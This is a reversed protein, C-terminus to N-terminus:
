AIMQLEMASQDKDQRIRPLRFAEEFFAHQANTGSVLIEDEDVLPMQFDPFWVTASSRAVALITCGSLKSIQLDAITQGIIPQANIRYWIHHVPIRGSENRPVSSVLQLM